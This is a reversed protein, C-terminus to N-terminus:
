ELRKVRIELREGRGRKWRNHTWLWLEPQEQINAELLRAFRETIAYPETSQPNDSILEIHATYHGRTTKHIHVYTVACGFKRGLQEGGGLFATDHHLFDTWYYDNGKSPKQDAILGITYPVNSNRLAIMKRLLGRKEIGSGEGSRKERLLRMAEDAGENKQKRYVNYHQIATNQYRKQIDATYEWNGLHGLMFICGGCQTTWQEIDAVNDFQMLQQMEEDTARWSHIIEVIVDSLHHYFRKQLAHIEQETKDPFSCQINRYSLKRRYRIVYFMIPYILGDSLAYLVRM